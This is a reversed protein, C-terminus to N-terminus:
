YNESKELPPASQFKENFRQESYVLEPANEAVWDRVCARAKTTADFIDYVALDVGGLHDIRNTLGCHRTMERIRRMEETSGVAVSEMSYVTFDGESYLPECIEPDRVPAEAECGVPVSAQASVLVLSVAALVSM